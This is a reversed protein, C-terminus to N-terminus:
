NEKDTHRTASSMLQNPYLSYLATLMKFACAFVHPPKQRLENKFRPANFRYRVIQCVFNM